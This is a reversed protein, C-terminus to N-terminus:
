QLRFAWVPTATPPERRRLIAALGDLGVVPLHVIVVFFVRVAFFLALRFDALDRFVVWAVFAWENSPMYLAPTTGATGAGTLSVALQNSVM